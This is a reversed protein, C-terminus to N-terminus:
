FICNCYYILKKCLENITSEWSTKGPDRTVYNIHYWQLKVPQLWTGTVKYLLLWLLLQLFLAYSFPGGHPKPFFNPQIDLCRSPSLHIQARPKQINSVGITIPTISVTFSPAQSASSRKRFSKPNWPSTYYNFGKGNWRRTEDQYFIVARIKPVQHNVRYRKKIVKQKLQLTIWCTRLKTVRWKALSDLLKNFKARRKTSGDDDAETTDDSEYQSDENEEQIAKSQQLIKLLEAGELTKEFDVIDTESM